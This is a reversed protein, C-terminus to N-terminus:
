GFCNCVLLSFIVQKACIINSTPLIFISSTIKLVVLPTSIIILAVQIRTLLDEVLAYALCNMM